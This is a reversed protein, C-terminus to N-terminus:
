KIVKFQQEHRTKDLYEINAQIEAEAPDAKHSQRDAEWLLVGILTMVVSFFAFSLIGLLWEM